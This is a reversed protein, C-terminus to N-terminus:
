SPAPSGLGSFTDAFPLAKVATASISLRATVDRSQHGPVTVKAPSVSVKAGASSGIFAASLRYTISGSSKNEITFSRVAWYPGGLAVNDFSLTDLKDRTVAIAATTTALQAQVVGSGAGLPDYGLIKSSSDSATSMIAAKVENV